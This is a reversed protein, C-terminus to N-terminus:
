AAPVPATLAAANGGRWRCIRRDSSRWGNGRGCSVAFATGGKGAACRPEKERGLPLATQRVAEAREGRQFFGWPGLWRGRERRWLCGCGDSLGRGNGRAALLRLFRAPLVGSPRAATGKGRAAGGGGRFRCFGPPKIFKRNSKWSKSSRKGQALTYYNTLICIHGLSAKEM